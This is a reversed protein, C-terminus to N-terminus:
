PIADEPAIGASQEAGGQRAPRKARSSLRAAPRLRSLGFKACRAETQDVFPVLKLFEIQGLVLQQIFKRFDIASQRLKKGQLLKHLLLKRLSTGNTSTVSASLVLGV